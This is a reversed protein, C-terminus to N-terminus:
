WPVMIFHELPMKISSFNNLAHLTVMAYDQGKKYDRIEGFYGKYNNLDSNQMRIVRIFDGRKVNQHLIQQEHQPNHINVINPKSSSVPYLNSIDLFNM